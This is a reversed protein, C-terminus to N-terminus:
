DKSMSTSVCGNDDFEVTWNSTQQLLRDQESGVKVVPSGWGVIEVRYTGRKLKPTTFKGFQDTRWVWSTKGTSLYIKFEAKGGLSEMKSYLGTSQTGV